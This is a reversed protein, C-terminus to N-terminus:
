KVKLQLDWCSAVADGTLTFRLIEPLLVNEHCAGAKEAQPFASHKAGLKCFVRRM